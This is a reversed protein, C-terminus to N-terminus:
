KCVEELTDEIDGPTSMIKMFTGMTLEPWHLAIRYKGHLMTVQTGQLIIEYPMAAVHDEGIIPLFAAEGDEKNLLGIGFVAVKKDPYVIRYVEVTEGKKAKLNADIIKLGEEFSTYENLEEPDSFYPMMMKYHYKKLGEADESGGFPTFENGISAFTTKVDKNFKEFVAKFSNYNDRLYARLIYDPNTYSITIKGDKEVLGVKFAAALAGRDSVKVVTNKLAENTFVIVKLKANNGPSYNGLVSFANSKLTSIIEDTIAQMSKTTEGVKIYPSLDQAVTNLHIILITIISFILKKM